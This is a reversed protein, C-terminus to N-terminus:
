ELASRLQHAVSEPTFRVRFEAIRTQSRAYSDASQQTVVDLITECVADLSECRTGIGTTQSLYSDIYPNATYILPKGYSLSDLFTGSARLRFSGIPALWLAHTISEARQAYVERSIPRHSAHEVWAGLRAAIAESGLFGVLRFTIGPNKEKVQRAVMELERGNGTNGFIGLICAAPRLNKIPVFHYPHDIVSSNSIMEAFEPPIHDRISQGLLLYRLGPPHRGAMTRRLSFLDAASGLSAPTEIRELDGHLVARVQVRDNMARKLLLIQMRSISTFLVRNGARLAGSILRHSHWLRSIVSGSRSAELTRWEIRSDIRPALQRLIRRVEEVHGAFGSFAVGEEDTALFAAHVMAANFSAHFMGTMQPEVIDLRNSM